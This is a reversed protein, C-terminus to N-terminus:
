LFSIEKTATTVVYCREINSADDAPELFFGPCGPKYDSTTGVLVEGDNFAVKIRRGMAPHSSDFENAEAHKPDGAFDRVFFLAKLDKTHTEVPGAGQPAVGVSVHFYGKSPFFDATMGKIVRGDAFRAVVKNVIGGKL